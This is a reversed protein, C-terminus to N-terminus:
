IFYSDDKDPKQIIGTYLLTQDLLKIPDINLDKLVEGIVGESNEVIATLLHLSTINDSNEALEDARAFFKKCEESRHVVKESRRFNGQGSKARLKRRLKTSNIKFKQLINEIADYEKKLEKYDSPNIRFQFEPSIFIKELSFIGMLIQEKEIYQYKALGTEMAAIQWAFSVGVSLDKM